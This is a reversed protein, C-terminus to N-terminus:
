LGTFYMKPHPNGRMFQDIDVLTPVNLKDAELTHAGGSLTREVRIIHNSVGSFREPRVEAELYLHSDIRYQSVVIHPSDSLSNKKAQPNGSPDPMFKEAFSM